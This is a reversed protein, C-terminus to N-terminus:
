LVAEKPNYGSFDSFPIQLIIEANWLVTNKRDAIDSYQLDNKKAKFM